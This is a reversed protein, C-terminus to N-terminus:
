QQDRLVQQPVVQVSVPTEMLPADTKTATAAQPVNYSTDDWREGTVTITPLTITEQESRRLDQASVSAAALFLCAGTLTWRDNETGQHQTM